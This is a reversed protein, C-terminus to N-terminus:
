FLKKQRKDIKKGQKPTGIAMILNVAETVTMGEGDLIEEEFEVLIERIKKRYEEKEKTM